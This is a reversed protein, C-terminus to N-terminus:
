SVNQKQHQCNSEGGVKGCSLASTVFVQEFRFGPREYPRKEIATPQPEDSFSDNIAM